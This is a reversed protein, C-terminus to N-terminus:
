KKLKSQAPLTTPFSLTAQHEPASHHQTRTIYQGYRASLPAASVGHLYISLLITWAAVAFVVEAGPVDTAEAILVAYVISALGRPGAWGIFGISAPALGSGWLSIVVAIPRVLLLSVLAYFLTQWTIDAFIDIAMFSGFLLFTILTLLQGEAEAFGTTRPLLSRASTGVALGATFAAVFGNGGLLEAGAYAIAALSITTLRQTTDTTWEHGASWELVRGGLWGTLAGVAMGIGVLAIFLAVYGGFSGTEHRAVDLLVTIFPVALGDNLGSEVNLTQRIRKPVADNSVFAQGLAADTPALTAALLAVAGLSLEPLLLWGAGTGILLALPLGFGLLRLALDHEKWVARLEMRSADTFLVVVLTAEALISVTENEVDFNVIGLIGPGLLIGATTFVMPLTIPTGQLRGALLGFGLVALAVVFVNAEM